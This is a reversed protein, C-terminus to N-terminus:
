KIVIFPPVTNSETFISAHMNPPQLTPNCHLILPTKISVNGRTTPDLAYPPAAEWSPSSVRNIVIFPPVTNSVKFIIAHMIPPQLMPNCHLILPTKISVNRRTTPDLAYPPTAELSPSSVQNIVIFPPVTYSETFISAHMNPPQLMPNCHLISPTKISVNGRTTPDLAYPPTTRWSLSSVRNIVIFPPVTNSETFISAHMNTPQLMPNCHLILPTKISVNGRTTPDLAYRPTAEWSPSSDRNIVIFPPVTNTETFTRAHM